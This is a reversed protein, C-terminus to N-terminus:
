DKDKLCTFILAKPTIGEESVAQALSQMADENHAGDLLLNPDGPIGQLRGPLRTEALAKECAEAKIEFGKIGALAYWASLALHANERQHSGMINLRANELEPGDVGPAPRVNGEPWSVALVDSSLRMRADQNKAEDRLTNWVKPDQPASIAESRPGTAGAKDHAIEELSHGLVNKHDLGIKTFLTLDAPLARTADFRGGLGAELVAVDVKARSFALAAMATIFEFYTPGIRRSAGRVQNALDLWDAESLMRGNIRIRERPTLFHPSTYLGARLGHTKALGALFLATSGKGNTGVVHVSASFPSELGLAKLLAEIRELGLDMHFLGLGDLFALVEEYTSFDSISCTGKASCIIPTDPFSM